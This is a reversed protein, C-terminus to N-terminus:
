SRKQCTKPALKRCVFHARNVSGLTVKLDPAIKCWYDQSNNHEGIGLIDALERGSSEHAHAIFM